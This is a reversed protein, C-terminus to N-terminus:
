STWSKNLVDTENSNVMPEVILRMISASPNKGPRKKCLEAAMQQLIVPDGTILRNVVDEMIDKVSTKRADHLRYKRILKNM